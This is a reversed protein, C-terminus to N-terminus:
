KIFSHYNTMLNTVALKYIRNGERGNRSIKYSYIFINKISEVDGSCYRANQLQCSMDSSLRVVCAQTRCQPRLLETFPGCELYAICNRHVNIM